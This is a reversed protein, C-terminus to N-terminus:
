GEGARRLRWQRMGRQLTVLALTASARNGDVVEHGLEDLLTEQSLHEVEAPTMGRVRETLYSAAALCITSGRGEFAVSELREDASVRAFMEIYDGCETDASAARIDADALPGRNRPREYHEVLFALIRQRESSVRSVEKKGV